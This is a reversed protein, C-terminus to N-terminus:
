LPTATRILKRCPINKQTCITRHFLCIDDRRMKSFAIIAPRFITMIIVAITTTGASKFSGRGASSSASSAGGHSLLLMLHKTFTYEVVLAVQGAWRGSHCGDSWWGFEIVATVSRGATSGKIRVWRSWKVAGIAHIGHIQFITAPHFVGWM